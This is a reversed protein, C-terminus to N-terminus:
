SKPRPVGGIKNYNPPSMDHISGNQFAAM